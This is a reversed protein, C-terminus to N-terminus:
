GPVFQWIRQVFMDIEFVSNTLNSDKRTHACVGVEGRKAYCYSGALTSDGIPRMEPLSERSVM